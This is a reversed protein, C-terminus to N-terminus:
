KHLKDKHVDIWCEKSQKTLIEMGLNGLSVEHYKIDALLKFKNWFTLHFKLKEVDFIEDTELLEFRCLGTDNTAGYVVYENNLNLLKETNLETEGIAVDTLAINAIKQGKEFFDEKSLKTVDLVSLTNSNCFVVSSIHSINNLEQWNPLQYKKPVGMTENIKKHDNSLMYDGFADAGKGLWYKAVKEPITGITHEGGYPGATLYYSYKAM